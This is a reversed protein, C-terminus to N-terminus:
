CVSDKTVALLCRLDKVGIHGIIPKDEKSKM